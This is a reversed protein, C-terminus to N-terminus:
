PGLDPSVERLTPLYWSDFFALLRKQEEDPPPTAYDGYLRELYEEPPSPCLHSRDAVTVRAPQEFLRRPMAERELYGAALNTLHSSRPGRLQCVVRFAWLLSRRPLARAALRLTAMVVRPRDLSESSAMLRTRAYFVRRLRRSVRLQARQAPKWAFTGGLPFLDVHVYKHHTSALHVRCFLHDYTADVAPDQVAYRPPLCERLARLAAPYASLPVLLDVDFDWPILDGGRVAGLATGACLFYEIGRREFIEAVVSLMDRLQVHLIEPSTIKAPPRGSASTTM